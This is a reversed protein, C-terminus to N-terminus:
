DDGKLMKRLNPAIACDNAWRKKQAEFSDVVPVHTMVAVLKVLPPPPFNWFPDARLSGDKRLRVFYIPAYSRDSVLVAEMDRLSDSVPAGFLDAVARVIWAVDTPTRLGVAIMPQEGISFNTYVTVIEPPNEHETM